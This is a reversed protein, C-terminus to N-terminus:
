PTVRYSGKLGFRGDATGRLAAQSREPILHHRGGLVVKTCDGALCATEIFRISGDGSREGEIKVRANGLSPWTLIGDVRQPAEAESDYRLYLEIPGKWPLPSTQEFEGKWIQRSDAERNSHPAAATHILALAATAAALARRRAPRHM